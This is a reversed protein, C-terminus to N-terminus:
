DRQRSPRAARARGRERGRGVRMARGDVELRREVEEHLGGAHREVQEVVPDREQVRRGRAPREDLSVRLVVREIEGLLLGPRLLIRQFMRVRRGGIHIFVGQVERLFSLAHLRFQLCELRDM